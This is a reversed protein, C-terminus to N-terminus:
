TKSLRLVSSISNHVQIKKTFGTISITRTRLVTKKTCSKVAARLEWNQTKVVIGDPQPNWVQRQPNFAWKEMIILSIQTDLAGPCNQICWRCRWPNTLTKLSESSFAM